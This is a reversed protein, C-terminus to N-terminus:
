NSQLLTIAYAHKGKIIYTNRDSLIGSMIYRQVSEATGGTRYCNL